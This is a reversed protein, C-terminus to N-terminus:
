FVVPRWDPRYLQSTWFFEQAPDQVCDGIQQVMLRVDRIHAKQEDTWQQMRDLEPNSFPAHGQHAYHFYSLLTTAGQM